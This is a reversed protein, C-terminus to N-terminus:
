IDTIYFDDSSTWFDDDTVKFKDNIKTAINQWNEWDTNNLLWDIGEYNDTMVFDIEEQYEQSDKTFGDKEAYYDARNQAVNLLPITYQGKPTNCIIVKM